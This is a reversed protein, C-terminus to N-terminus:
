GEVVDRELLESAVVPIVVGGFKKRILPKIRDRDKPEIDIIGGRVLKRALTIRADAEEFTINREDEYAGTLAMVCAAKLTLDEHDAGQAKLAANFEEQLGAPIRPWIVNLAAVTNELSQGIRISKGYVDCIKVDFDRKM